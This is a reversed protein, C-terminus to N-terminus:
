AVANQLQQILNDKCIRLARSNADEYEKQVKHQVDDTKRKVIAIVRQALTGPVDNVLREFLLELMEFIIKALFAKDVVKDRSDKFKYHKTLYTTLKDQTSVYISFEALSGYTETIEKLTMNALKEPVVIKPLEKPADPYVYNRTNVAPNSKTKNLRDLSRRDREERLPREAIYTQALAHNANIKRGVVAAGLRKKIRNINSPSVGAMDAFDKQTVLKVPEEDM